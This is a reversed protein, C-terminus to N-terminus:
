EVITRKRVVRFCGSSRRKASPDMGRGVELVRRAEFVQRVRGLAGLFGRAFSPRGLLVSGGLRIPLWLFHVLLRAGATNKWMFLLTNRSALEDCRDKGLEPEFTGFGKHYAVSEPM